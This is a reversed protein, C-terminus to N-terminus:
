GVTQLEIYFVQGPSCHQMGLVQVAYIELEQLSLSSEVKARLVENENKLKEAEREYAAALDNVRNLEISSVLCLVLMAGSFLICIIVFATERFFKM